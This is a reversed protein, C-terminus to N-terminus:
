QYHNISTPPTAATHAPRPRSPTRDSTGRTGPGNGPHQAPIMGPLCRSARRHRHPERHRHPLDPLVPALGRQVPLQRRRQGGRRLLEGPQRGPGRVLGPVEIVPLPLLHDALLAALQLPPQQLGREVDVGGALLPGLPDRASGPDPVAGDLVPVAPAHGAHEPRDPDGPHGVPVPALRVQVRSIGPLDQGVVRVGQPHPGQRGEVQGGAPEPLGLLDDLGAGADGDAAGLEGAQRLVERGPRVVEVLFAGAVRFVSCGSLSTIMICPSPLPMAMRGSCRLFAPFSSPVRGPILFIASITATASKVGATRSGSSMAAGGARRWACGPGFARSLHTDADTVSHMSSM